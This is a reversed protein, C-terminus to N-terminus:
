MNDRLQLIWEIFLLAVIAAALYTLLDNFFELENDKIFPDPLSDMVAQTNSEAAPIKVYFQIGPAEQGFHGTQDIRYTGPMDIRVSAPFASIENKEGSGNEPTLTLKNGRSNLQIEAGVEYYNSEITAPFFYRYLNDMLIPFDPQLPWNSYNLHVGLVVIKSDPENRVLLVPDGDCTMLTDYTGDYDMKVYRSVEFASVNVNDLISSRPKEEIIVEQLSMLSGGYDVVNRVTIGSGSPGKDPNVLFIIGDDPLEEPMTHEFIYMDFGINETDLSDNIHIEWQDVYENQIAGLASPIYPNKFSSAYKINVVEKQGGYISFTDDDPFCDVIDGTNEFSLLITQYSFFRDADDLIVYTVNEGETEDDYDRSVGFVVTQVQDDFCEVDVELQRTEGVDSIDSANAGTVNMRLTVTGNAGYLAVHATVKYYGSVFEATADLIAANIENDDAVNVVNVGAPTYEYDTDTYFYITTEPNEAVVEECLSMTKDIDVSAYSCSDDAVLNNVATALTASQAATAQRMLYRPQNDAVIVSVKGDNNFVTDALELVKDCARTFRYDGDYSARMSASSDIIAIVENEEYPEHLVQAPSALAAAAGALILVQCLILLLDRLKSTPIRRKRYKLSLKWIYTSSVFKQQYNPKIIYIIILVLIGLLGLLGLPTLFRM